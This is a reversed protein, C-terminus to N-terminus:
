RGDKPPRVFLANGTRGSWPLFEMAVAFGQAELWDRLEPYRCAGSYDEGEDSVEAYIVGVTDMIRPAARMAQLEFGQMDLWLMDVREVGARTAWSDITMAQVTVPEGFSAANGDPALLSSSGTFPPLSVFFTKEADEDALALKHRHINPIGATNRELEAHVYDLPEFAHLTAKPFLAAMEVSDRGDNAGCDIIVPAEPLWPALDEKLIHGHVIAFVVRAQRAPPDDPRIAYPRRALPHAPDALGAITDVIARHRVAAEEARGERALRDAEDLTAEIANSLNLHLNKSYPHDQVLRSLHRLGALPNGAQKELVGLMHSADFDAPNLAQVLRYLQRAQDLRSHRHHEAAARIIAPRQARANGLATPALLPCDAAVRLFLRAAEIHRGERHLAVGQDFLERGLRDLNTAAPGHAPRVRIARALTSLGAATRGTRFDAVGLLNLADAQAPEVALVQRYLTAAAQLAGEQHRRVAEQLTDEIRIMM